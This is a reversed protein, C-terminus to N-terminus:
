LSRIRHSNKSRCFKRLRKIADVRLFAHEQHLSGILGGLSLALRPSKTHSPKIAQNLFYNQLVVTDNFHGLVTQLKALERKLFKSNKADFYPSFIDLLYRLKKLRIRMEHILSDPSSQNVRAGLKCIQRFRKQIIKFVVKRISESDANSPRRHLDQALSEMTEQYAASKIYAALVRAEKERSKQLEQFFVDLGGRLQPPLKKELSGRMMLHVDLDRLRNTQRFVHSLDKKCRVSIRFHNKFAGLLARMKRLAVRYDHLFNSDQSDIIGSENRRAIALLKVLEEEWAVGAPSTAEGKL